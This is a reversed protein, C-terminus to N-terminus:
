QPQEQPTPVGSLVRRARNSLIRSRIAANVRPAGFRDCLWDYRDGVNLLPSEYDLYTDTTHEAAWGYVVDVLCRRAVPGSEYPLCAETLVRDEEAVTLTALYKGIM